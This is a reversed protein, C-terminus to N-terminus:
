SAAAGPSASSAPVRLNDLLKEGFRGDGLASASIVINQDALFVYYVHMGGVCSTIYTQRGGLTAEANGIVGGGAACAGQDFSDRWQQFANDDFVGPKTRVVLASLLNGNAQDVAVAADLATAIPPLADNGLDAAATDNDETVLIGDISVPLYALLSSDQVLPQTDVQDTPSPPPGVTALAAASATPAAALTSAVPALTPSTSSCAGLFGALVMAAIARRAPVSALNM